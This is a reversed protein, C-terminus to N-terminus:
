STDNKGRSPTGARRSWFRPPPQSPRPIPAVSPRPSARGTPSGRRRRRIPPPARRGDVRSAEMETGSAVARLYFALSSEGDIEAATWARLRAIAARQLRAHAALAPARRVLVAAADIRVRADLGLSGVGVGGFRVWRARLEAYARAYGADSVCAPEGVNEAHAARAPLVLVAIALTLTAKM